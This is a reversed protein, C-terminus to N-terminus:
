KKANLGRDKLVLNYNPNFLYSEGVIRRKQPEFKRGSLTIYGILVDNSTPKSDKYENIIFDVRFTQTISIPKTKNLIWEIVSREPNTESASQLKIDLIDVTRTIGDNAMNTYANQVNDTFFKFVTPSSYHCLYCEENVNFVGMKSMNKNTCDCWNNFNTISTQSISFRKSLYTRIFYENLYQSYSINKTFNKPRKSYSSSIYKYRNEIDNWKVFKPSVDRSFARFITLIILFMAVFLAVYTVRAFKYIAVLYKREPFSPVDVTFPYVSVKNSTEKSDKLNNNRYVM